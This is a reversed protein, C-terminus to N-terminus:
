DEKVKKVERLVFDLHKILEESDLDLNEEAETKMINKDKLIKGVTNQLERNVEAKGIIGLLRSDIAHKYVSKRLDINVAVLRASNYIGLLMLYSGLILATNTVLGFPPYPALSQVLAQDTAFMLLIGWGSIIMCTQINRGYSVTKSIRWFVIGFALGGIPKSLSLVATIMLSVTIPDITLYEILLSILIFQYFYDLLFYLLPLSLLLWFAVTNILGKSYNKTLAATTFWLSVFAAISSISYLLNLFTHRGVSIDISGGVYQRVEKPRDQVNYNTYLATIVFSFLLFVMSLFYLLVIKDRNSKYWSWFLVCFVVLFLSATGYSVSIISITILSSYYNYYVLQFTLVAFLATLISLSILSIRYFHNVDLGQQGLKYHQLSNRIHFIILYEIFLCVFSIVSFLAVKTQLSVFGKYMLDYIKIFSTDVLLIVILGIM